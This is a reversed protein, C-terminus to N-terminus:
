EPSHLGENRRRFPPTVRHLWVGVLGNLLPVDVWAVEATKHVAHRGFTEYYQPPLYLATRGPDPQAGMPTRSPGAWTGGQRALGSGPYNLVRAVLPAIGMVM